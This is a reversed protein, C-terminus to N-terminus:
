LRRFWFWASRWTQQGPVDTSGVEVRELSFGDAFVTEVTLKHLGGPGNDGQGNEERLRAFLLFDGGTRILRQLQNQYPQLDDVSMNHCCGVDIALDYPGALFDLDTAQCLHFRAYVGATKARRAAEAIAQPIFDIGDVDWGKAALYITARGYGCGLDIARQAPLAAVHDVIEPPPLPDDWPVDGSAYREALRQYLEESNQNM